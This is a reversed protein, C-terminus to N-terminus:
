HPEREMRQMKELQKIVDTREAHITQLRMNINKIKELCQYYPTKIKESKITSKSPKELADLQLRTQILNTEEQQKALNLERLYGIAQERSLFYRRGLQHGIHLPTGNTSPISFLDEPHINNYGSSSFEFCYLKGVQYLKDTQTYEGENSLMFYQGTYNTPWIVYFLVGLEKGSLMGLDTSFTRFTVNSALKQEIQYGVVVVIINTSDAFDFRDGQEQAALTLCAFLCFLLSVTSHYALLVKKGFM